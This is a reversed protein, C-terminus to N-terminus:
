RTTPGEAAPSRGTVQLLMGGAVSAPVSRSRTALLTTAAGSAAIVTRRDAGGGSTLGALM